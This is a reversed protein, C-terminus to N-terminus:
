VDTDSTLSAVVRQLREAGDAALAQMSPIALIYRPDVISVRTTVNGLDELVVNCPILLAAAPDLAIAQSALMPNCAGLIRLPTREIKLKAAFTAALDIETLVGFGEAALADRVLSEADDISAPVVVEFANM